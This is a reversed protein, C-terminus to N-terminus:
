GKLFFTRRIAEVNDAQRALEQLQERLVIPLRFLDSLEKARTKFEGPRQPDLLFDSTTVLVAKAKLARSQGAVSNVKYFIDMANNQGQKGSKCEVMVLAMESDVFVVDMENPEKDGTRSPKISRQVDNINLAKANRILIGWAFVELWDGTVFKGGVKDLKVSGDAQSGFRSIIAEQSAKDLKEVQHSAITIGKDRAMNREKDTFEFLDNSTANEALVRSTEWLTTDEEALAAIQQSTKNLEYGYGALFERISLRHGSSETAPSDLFIMNCPQGHEIYFLRSTRKAFCDYAALAMLKNGGTLNVLWDSEPFSRITTEMVGRVYLMDDVRNLPVVTCRDSYNFRDTEIDGAKLANLFSHSKGEMQKSEVLVLRDPKFHHVSLLNPVHQDSLLCLLVKM